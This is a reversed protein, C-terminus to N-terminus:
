SMASINVFTKYFHQKLVGRFFIPMLDLFASNSQNIHCGFPYIPLFMAVLLSFHMSLSKYSNVWTLLHPEHAQEEGTFCYEYSFSKLATKLAKCRLKRTINLVLSAYDSQGDTQTKSSVWVPRLKVEEIKTKNKLPTDSNM